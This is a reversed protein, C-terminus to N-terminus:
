QVTRTTWIELEYRVVWVDMGAKRAPDEELSPDALPMTRVFRVGDPFVLTRGERPLWALKGFAKALSTAGKKSGRAELTIVRYDQWPTGTQVWNGDKDQKSPSYFRPERGKRSTAKVYVPGQGSALRGTGLPGAVSGLDPDPDWLAKMAELAEEDAITAAAM